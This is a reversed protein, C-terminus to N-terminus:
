TIKEKPSMVEKDGEGTWPKDRNLWASWRSCKEPVAMTTTKQNPGATPVGQGGSHPQATPHGSGPAGPIASPHGDTGSNPGM